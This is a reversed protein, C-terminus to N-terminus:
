IKWAFYIMYDIKLSYVTCSISNQSNLWVLSSSEEGFCFLYLNIKSLFLARFKLKNKKLDNKMIGFQLPIQLINCNLLCIFTLCRFWFPLLFTEKQLHCSLIMSLGLFEVMFSDFCIFLNLLNWSVFSILFIVTNGM